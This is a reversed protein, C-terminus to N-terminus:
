QEKKGMIIPTKFKLCIAQRHTAHLPHGHDFDYYTRTRYKRGQTSPESKPVPVTDIIASYEYRSISKLKEGKLRYHLLYPVPTRATEDQTYIACKGRYGSPAFDEWHEM